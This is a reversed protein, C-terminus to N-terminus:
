LMPPLCKRWLAPAQCTRGRRRASQRDLTQRFSPGRCDGVKVRQGVVILLIRGLGDLLKGALDQVGCKGMREFSGPLM